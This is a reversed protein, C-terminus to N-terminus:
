TDHVMMINDRVDSADFPTYIVIPGCMEQLASVGYELTVGEDNHYTCRFELGDGEGLM